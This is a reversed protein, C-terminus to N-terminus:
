DFSDVDIFYHVLFHSSILGYVMFLKNVWSILSVYNCPWLREMSPGYLLRWGNSVYYNFKYNWIEKIPMCFCVFM